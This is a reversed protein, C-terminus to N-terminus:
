IETLMIWQGIELADLRWPGIQARILRLTPYGVAATMRRVQRNRGEHIRLELWSTPIHARQRIPPDRPWPGEDTEFGPHDAASLRRAQAPKTLGDNLQVGRALADLAAQDLDGEVQVWYTKPLKHEPDAIRHQLAGDDTLILLGESTYDLRGAAYVGPCNVYDALTAQGPQDPTFQSLVEYPKNFLILRKGPQLQLPQAPARKPARRPRQGSRKSSM